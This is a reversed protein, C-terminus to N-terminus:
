GDGFVFAQYREGDLTVWRVVPTAESERGPVPVLGAVDFDGRASVREELLKQVSAPLTRRLAYPLEQALAVQGGHM